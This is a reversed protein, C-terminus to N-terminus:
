QAGTDDDALSVVAGSQALALGAPTSDYMPGRGTFLWNLSFGYVALAYYVKSAPLGQGSWHRRLVHQNVYGLEACTIVENGFHALCLAKM